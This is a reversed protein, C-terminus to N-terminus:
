PLRGFAALSAIEHPALVRNYIRVEDITGAFHAGPQGPRAGLYLDFSTQPEFAGITEERALAGDLYLRVIGSDADYTAALHHWEGASPAPLNVIHDSEEGIASVLNIGTPLDGWPYGSRFAWLSAGYRRTNHWELLPRDAQYDNVQYYLAITLYGNLNIGPAAPIILMDDQGDFSLGSGRSGHTTRAAGILQGHYGRESLDPEDNGSGEFALYLMLAQTSVIEKTLANPTPTSMTVPTPSSFAIQTKLRSIDAQYASITEQYGPPDTPPPTRVPLGTFVCGMVLLSLITIVASYFKKM